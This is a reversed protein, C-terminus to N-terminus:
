LASANGGESFPLHKRSILPVSMAVGESIVKFVGERERPNGQGEIPPTRVNFPIAWKELQPSETLHALVEVLRRYLLNCMQNYIQLSIASRKM